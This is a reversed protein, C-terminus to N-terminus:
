LVSLKQFNVPKSIPIWLDELLGYTTLEGQAPQNAYYQSENEPGVLIIPALFRYAFEEIPMNGFTVGRFLYPIFLIQFDQKKLCLRLEYNHRVSECVKFGVKVYDSLIDDYYERLKRDEAIMIEDSVAPIEIEKPAVNQPMNFSSNLFYFINLQWNNDRALEFAAKFAWDGQTSYHAILGIKEIRLTSM